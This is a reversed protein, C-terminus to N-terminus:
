SGIRPLRPVSSAVSSTPISRAPRRPPRPERACQGPEASTREQPSSRTSVSSFRLLPRDSSRPNPASSDDLGFEGRFERAEAPQMAALEAEIKACLAAVAAGPGVHRRSYEAEIAQLDPLQEEGINVVVLQPLRTVFRYNRLALAEDASLELSRLAAGGALHAQLRMMLRQDRELESREGVRISRMEAGIRELRREVLALDAFQLELEITELDREPDVTGQPPSVRPDDFMRVVHVLADLKALDAVFRTGPGSPGFGAVPYDVWRIEAFTVRAPRFIEALADVRDDPVRVTGLVPEVTSSYSGVLASGGTVANFLSTKGSRASGIIGSNWAALTRVIPGESLADGIRAPPRVQGQADGGDSTARGPSALIGVQSRGYECQSLLSCEDCRPNSRRCTRQGHRVILAHWENLLAVDPGVRDLLFARYSEYRRAAPALGLREFLRYTYADVVFTARRPPTSCSRM